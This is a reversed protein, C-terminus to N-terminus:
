GHPDPPELPLLRSMGPWGNLLTAQSPGSFNSTALQVLNEPPLKSTVAAPSPPRRLPKVMQATASCIAFFILIFSLTVLKLSVVKLYSRRSMDELNEYRGSM